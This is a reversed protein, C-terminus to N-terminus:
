RDPPSRPDSAGAQAADLRSLMAAVQMPFNSALSGYNEVASEALLIGTAYEM